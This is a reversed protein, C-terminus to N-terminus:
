RDLLLKDMRTDSLNVVHSVYLAYWTSRWRVFDATFLSQESRRVRKYVTVIFVYFSNVTFFFRHMM